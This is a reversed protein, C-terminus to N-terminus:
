RFFPRQQLAPETLCCREPCWLPHLGVSAFNGSSSEIVTTGPGIEDREIARKLIWFALRDKIGGIGNLHELKSFLEVNTDELCLIPTGRIISEVSILGEVLKKHTCM